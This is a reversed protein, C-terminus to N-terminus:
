IEFHIKVCLHWSVASWVVSTGGREEKKSKERCSSIFAPKVVIERQYHCLFSDFFMYPNDCNLWTALNHCQRPPM